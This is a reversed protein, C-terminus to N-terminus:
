AEAATLVLEVDVSQGQATNDVHPSLAVIVTVVVSEGAALTVPGVAGDFRVETV